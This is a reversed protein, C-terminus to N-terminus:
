GPSSLLLAGSTLRQLAVDLRAAVATAVDETNSVTLLGKDVLGLLETLVV